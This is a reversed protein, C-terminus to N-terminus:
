QDSLVETDAAAANAPKEAPKAPAASTTNGPQSNTLAVATGETRAGDLDTMADTTTGDVVELDKMPVATNGQEKGKCATLAVPLLMAALITRTTLRM